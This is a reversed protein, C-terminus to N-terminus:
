GKLGSYAMTEMVKKHFIVFVIIPVATTIMTAAAVAGWRAISDSGITALALPLTRMAETRTFVLPGFFENWAFIFTIITLTAWAPRVLPMVIQWFIRLENAGDLRASELMEDPVQETFQKMLFLGYTSPLLPLILAWYTNIMGLSDIVIYRPIQTVEPAFMLGAIVALFIFNRGPMDRHKALPYAALSALVIVGAVVVAAVFMSNFIYRSFPVSLASTSILLAEFNDMVPRLVVFRPPWLFLEELPKFATSVMYVLPLAMFLGLSTLLIMTIIEGAGVGGWRRVLQSQAM